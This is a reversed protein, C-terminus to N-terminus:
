SMKKTEENYLQVNHLKYMKAKGRKGKRTMKNSETPKRYRRKRENGNRKEELIIKKKRIRSKKKM